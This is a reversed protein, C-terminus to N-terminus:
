ELSTGVAVEFSARVMARLLPHTEIPVGSRDSLGWAAALCMHATEVDRPLWLFAQRQLRTRWTRCQRQPFSLRVCASILEELAPRRLRRPKGMLALLRPLFPALDAGPLLWSRFGPLRLLTDARALLAERAEAPLAEEALAVPTEGQPEMGLADKWIEFEAPLRRHTRRNVAKAEWVRARCYSREVMVWGVQERDMGQLMENVDRRTAAETGFCDALGRHDSLFFSSLRFQRDALPELILIM